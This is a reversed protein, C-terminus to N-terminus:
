GATFGDRDIERRLTEYDPFGLRGEIEQRWLEDLRSLIEDSLEDAHAGVEGQRVKASDSGSPLGLVTESRDRMLKDDFRDKHQLMFEFSAHKQTIRLLNDDLPIKCFAAIKQITGTLDAKMTEYALLLVDERFRQPWWSLLHHWYGHGQRPELFNAAYEAMTVHGAEFFWGENFRYLSVLVDRPDRVPVIYRGGKPVNHWTLHSKFARPQGHQPADLDIGFDQSVELWPVVRSIDDFDMDGRSRLTHVIQQTWTTGSKAYPSIIIDTPGPLFALGHQYAEDTTFEPLERVEALSRPRRKSSTSM